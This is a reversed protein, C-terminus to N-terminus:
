VVEKSEFAEQGHLSDAKHLSSVISVDLWLSNRWDM